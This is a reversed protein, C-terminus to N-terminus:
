SYKKIIIIQTDSMEERRREQLLRTRERHTERESDCQQYNLRIRENQIDGEEQSGHERRRRQRERNAARQRELEDLNDM